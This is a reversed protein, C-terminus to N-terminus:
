YCCVAHACRTLRLRLARLGSVQLLSILLFYVNALRRFQEAGYVLADLSLSVISDSRVPCVGFLNKPVFSAASYKYTRVFNNRFHVSAARDGM